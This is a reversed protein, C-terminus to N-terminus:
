RGSKKAAAVNLVLSERTQENDKEFLGLHKMAKELGSNKDWLKLKTTTAGDKDTVFEISSIARRVKPDMEALPILRGNSELMQGIDSYSLGAIEELTREVSLEAKRLAPAKLAAIRLAVKANAKLKSAAVNIAALSMGKADYANRYADSANSGKAVAVAFMEQKKTLHATM